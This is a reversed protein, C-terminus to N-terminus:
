FANFTLQITEFVYIQVQSIMTGVNMYGKEETGILAVPGKVGPIVGDIIAFGEDLVFEVKIGRSKLHEAIFAAGSKGSVEEDHGYAFIISREPQFGRSLLYEAAELQALVNNKDDIAGRGWIFGDSIRGDFAPYSWVDLEGLPVVDM